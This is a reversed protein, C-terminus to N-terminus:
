WIPEDCIVSLLFFNFNSAFRNFHDLRFFMFPLVQPAVHSSIHSCPGASSPDVRSLPGTLATLGLCPLSPASTSLLSYCSDIMHTNYFTNTHSLQGVPSILVLHLLIPKTKIFSPQFLTNSGSHTSGGPFCDSMLHQLGQLHPFCGEETSHM